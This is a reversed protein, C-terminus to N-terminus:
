EISARHATGHGVYLEVLLKSASLQLCGSSEPCRMCADWAALDVDIGPPLAATGPQSPKLRFVAGAIEQGQRPSLATRYLNGYCDRHTNM